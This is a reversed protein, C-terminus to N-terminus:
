RLFLFSRFSVLQTALPPRQQRRSDPRCFDREQHGGQTHESQEASAGRRRMGVGLAHEAEGARAQWGGLDGADPRKPPSPLPALKARPGPEGTVCALAIICQHHAGTCMEPETAHPSGNGASAAPSHEAVCCARWTARLARGRSTEHLRHRHRTATKKSGPLVATEHTM